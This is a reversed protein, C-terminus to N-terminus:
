VTMRSPGCGVPHVYNKPPRLGGLGERGRAPAARGFFADYGKTPM